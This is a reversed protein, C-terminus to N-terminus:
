LNEPGYSLRFLVRSKVPLPPPEIRGPGVLNTGPYSLQYLAQSNILDVCTRSRGRSGAKM